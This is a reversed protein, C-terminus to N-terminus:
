KKYAIMREGDKREKEFLLIRKSWGRDMKM